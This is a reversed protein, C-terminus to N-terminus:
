KEGIIKDKFDLIEQTAENWRRKLYTKWTEDQRKSVKQIYTGNKRRFGQNKMLYEIKQTKKNIELIFCDM